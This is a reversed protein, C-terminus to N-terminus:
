ASRGNNYSVFAPHGGLDTSVFCNGNGEPMGGGHWEGVWGFKEALKKAAAIHNENSNLADDYDVIVRGAAAKAIIRSGRVNSPGVYKTVIAQYM